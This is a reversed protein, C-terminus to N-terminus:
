VYPANTFYSVYWHIFYTHLMSNFKSLLNLTTAAALAVEHSEPRGRLEEHRTRLRERADGRHPREDLLKIELEKNAVSGTLCAAFCISASRILEFGIFMRNFQLKVASSAIKIAPTSPTAKVAAHKKGAKARTLAATEPNTSFMSTKRYTLSPRKVDKVNTKTLDVPVAPVLEVPKEAAAKSAAASLKARKSRRAPKKGEEEDLEAGEFEYESDAPQEDIDQANGSASPPFNLAAGSCSPEDHEVRSARKKELLPSALPLRKANGKAILQM